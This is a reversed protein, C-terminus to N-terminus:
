ASSPMRSACSHSSHLRTSKRDLRKGISLPATALIDAIREGAAGDGYLPDSAVHGRAVQAQIAQAIAARDYDTDVVNAGRDRCLQRTGINSRFLTTYPFLTDTRTSRPTPRKM